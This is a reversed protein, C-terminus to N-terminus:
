RTPPPAFDIAASGIDFRAGTPKPGDPCVHDLHSQFKFFREGITEFRNPWGAPLAAPPTVPETVIAAVQMAGLTTLTTLPAPEAGPRPKGVTGGFHDTRPLGQLRAM